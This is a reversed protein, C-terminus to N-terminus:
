PEKVSGKKNTNVFYVGTLIVLLGAVQILGINEGAIVGWFVAVFPIGYTVMSSFLVGARKMLIYFLITATATGLMGLVAASGFAYAFAETQFDHKFFGTVWLMLLAPLMFFAFSISAIETSATQHLKRNVMNVNVGYLLTALLVLAAYWLDEANVRMNPSLVLVMGAFGILVGLMKTRGIGMKLFIVGVLIVFLPTLANLMGALASDIKTEAMCFLIAPIFSGLLGSLLIYPLKSKEISTFSRKVFPLLVAGAFFMRVGAVQYPNFTKLGEKMLMFSSGWIFSLAIFLLWNIWAKNM